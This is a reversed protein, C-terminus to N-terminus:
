WVVSVETGQGPQSEIAFSAGIARARERMIGLGLTPATIGEPDFGRGDDSIHLVVRGPECQLYLSARSARAHKVANNLAEQAIRYLAVKVEQVLSCKGVVTTTVPLNTQAMTANTLQRILADLKQGVLAQPRLELLMTRMEALAGQTLRRLEALGRQAEEPHREWIHPLTEAILSASFLAQSVADHLERALRNREETVAVVQAQEYLRANEIAAAVDGAITEVLAVEDASFAGDTTKTGMGMVGIVAGRVRLPVIMVAKFGLARVHEYGAAALDQVPADTIIQTEARGLVRDVVPGDLAALIGGGPGSPVPRRTFSAMEKFKGTDGDLLGVVTTTAQMLGTVTKCVEELTEPLDTVTALTHAIRNLTALEELRRRLQEEARQKEESERLAQDRRGCDTVSTLTLIVGAVAGGADKFPVFSWDWLRAAREPREAPELPTAQVFHPEGTELVRKFAQLNGTNPFLDFHNRGPLFEPERGLAEAYARNVRLYNFQRDLVAVLLHSHELIAELVLSNSLLGAGAQQADVGPSTERPVSVRDAAAIGDKEVVM